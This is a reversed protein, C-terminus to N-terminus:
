KDKEINAEQNESSVSKELIVPMPEPRPTGIIDKNRNEIEEIIELPLPVIINKRYFYGEPENLVPFIYAPVFLETSQGAIQDYKWRIVLGLVPTGLEVDITKSADPNTWTQYVGGNLALNIIKQSDNEIGYNSSAFTQPTIGRLGYAKKYRVSVDVTIGYPNGSEDKVSQNNIILPYTVQVIDPIYARDKDNSIEYQQRWEDQIQAPGYNGMNIEYEKIFNDTILILEENTLMDSIKLRIDEYCKQNEEPDQSQCRTEPRPWKEWSANLTVNNYTFDFYISYGYDRDEIINLNSITTNNFKNLDILGTNVGSILDAMQKSASKDKTRKYVAMQDENITFDDGKYAYNYNVMDPAPMLSKSEATSPAVFGGGGGMGLTEGGGGSQSRGLQEESTVLSGFANNGLTNIETKDLALKIKSEKNLFYFSSVILLVIVALGGLAYTYKKMFNINFFSWVPTKAPSPQRKLEEAKAMLEARLQKAFAKDFKTDPRSELLKNIIKILKEEHNKLGPDIMYLDNLINQILQDKSM